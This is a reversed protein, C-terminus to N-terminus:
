LIFFKLMYKFNGLYKRCNKYFTKHFTLYCQYEKEDPVAESYKARVFIDTLTSFSVNEENFARLHPAVREKFEFPTEEPAKRIKLHRFKKLYLHYMRLIQEKKPQEMTKKLWRRRVWLKILIATAILLCFLPILLFPTLFETTYKIAYFLKNKKSNDLRSPNNRQEKKKEDKQKEQDGESKDEKRDGKQKSDKENDNVNNTREESDNMIHTDAIGVKELVELAMYKTILKLDQKPPDLPKVIGYFVGASLALVIMCLVTSIAFTRGFATKLTESELVNKQYNKYIYMTGCGCLFLLMAYLHGSEYLFQIAATLFAGAVFLIGTGTRTRSLFFVALATLILILFYLYPNSEQDRFVNRLPESQRLLILGAVAAAIGSALAIWASKKSYAGAFCIAILVATMTIIVAYNSQRDAAIYFGNFIIMSLSCAIVSCLIWEWICNKIYYGFKM